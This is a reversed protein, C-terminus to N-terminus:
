ELVASAFLVNFKLCYAHLSAPDAFGDPVLFWTEEGAFGLNSPRLNNATLKVARSPDRLIAKRDAAVAEASENSLYFFVDPAELTQWDTLRVYQVGDVAIVAVQGANGKKKAVGSLEGQALVDGEGPSAALYAEALPPQLDQKAFLRTHYAHCGSLSVALLAFLAIRVTSM